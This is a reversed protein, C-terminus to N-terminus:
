QTVEMIVSVIGGILGCGLAILMLLCFAAIIWKVFGVVWSVLKEMRDWIGM